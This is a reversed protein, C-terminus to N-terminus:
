QVLSKSQSSFSSQLRVLLVQSGLEDLQWVLSSHGSPWVQSAPVQMVPPSPPSQPSPQVIPIHRGKILM